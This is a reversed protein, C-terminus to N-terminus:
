LEGVPRLYEPLDEYTGEELIMEHCLSCDQTIVEGEESEHMDDHCRFCGRMDEYGGRHGLHNPHVDWGLNMEPYINRQYIESATKALADLQEPTVEEKEDAYWKNLDERLREYAQPRPIDTTKLVEVMSKRAFPVERDVRGEAIADDVAIEPVPKFAHSPRNHCDVCSMLRHERVPQDETDPNKFVKVTEGAKKFTVTGIKERKEDLSDYWIEVDSSVHWHIGHYENTKPNRGGIKLNLANVMPSNEKDSDFHEFIKFRNGLFKAPWHCKECTERAPRLTHVPSPIPRPYSSNLTEWIMPIGDIKARIAWDMGEGIHCETCKVRSHPSNLYTNYEPEMVTHCLTGCFEPSESYKIAKHGVAGLIFINIISFVCFFIISARANRDSFIIGAAKQFSSDRLPDRGRLRDVLLGLPILLLGTVFVGPLILYLFAIAYSNAIPSVLSAGLALLLTLGSLTTLVTGLWTLANRFLIKFVGPTSHNENKGEETESM